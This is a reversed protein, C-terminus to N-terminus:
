ALVEKRTIKSFQGLDFYNKTKIQFKQFVRVSIAVSDPNVLIFKPKASRQSLVTRLLSTFYLDAPPFSYGIFVIAKAMKLEKELEGWIEFLTPAADLYGAQKTKNNNLSFKLHSPAVVVPQDEPENGRVIKKEKLFWNVSGHPKYVSLSSTTNEVCHYGWKRNNPLSDEFVTDYNFSVVADRKGLQNNVLSRYISRTKGNAPFRRFVSGIESIMAVWVKDIHTKIHSPTSPSQSRESLFTFVEEVDIRSLLNGRETAKLKAPVRKYDTFYRFLFIEITKRNEESKAFKLFIRWFSAQTPIDVSGGHQVSATAGAGLSAGAGLVFVVKRGTTM